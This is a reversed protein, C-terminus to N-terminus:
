RAPNALRRGLHEVVAKLDEDTDVQVTDLGHRTPSDTQVGVGLLTYGKRKCTKIERQLVELEEEKNAAPMKGDTYYLLIRDTTDRRDLQKRAFELAHGDLNGGAAGIWALRDKASTDWPQDWDKIHYVQMTYSREALRGDAGCHHAIVSFEVGLRAMLDAQAFAARKVLALNDGFNSSSIDIIILVSYDKKGPIRKKAFLRDDGSWARRGLVKPDVRGSRRHREHTAVKNDDFVRRLKLLNPGMIAEPIEVDCEVGLFIQEERKLHDRLEWVPGIGDRFEEVLSVNASPTEFYQGQIVAVKIAKEDGTATEADPKNGFKDAKDEHGEHMQNVVYEVQEPAGWEPLPIGGDGKDAGSELVSSLGEGSGEQDGESPDAPEGDAEGEDESPEGRDSPGTDEQGELDGGGVGDSGSDDHDAQTDGLEPVEDTGDSIGTDSHEDGDAEPSSAGGEGAARDDRAADSCEEGLDGVRSSDDGSGSEQADRDSGRDDGSAESGEGVGNSGAADGDPDAGGDEPQGVESTDGESPEDEAEGPGASDSGPEADAREDAQGTGDDGSGYADHEDGSPEDTGADGDSAAGDGEQSEGPVDGEAEPESESDDGSENGSSSSSQEDGSSGVGDEGRESSEPAEDEGSGADSGEGSEDNSEEQEDSDGSEDSDPDDTPESDQEEPLRMYGLERLRELIPFSAEYTDAMSTANTVANLLYRLRKDKLDAGVKEHLYVEWGQYGAAVLYCAIAAQSNLDNESWMQRTGDPLEIGDRFISFTDAVLMKKTGKRAEFMASDVRADELSNLLSPLFPSILSALGLYTGKVQPPATRIRESMKDAFESGWEAVGRTLANKLDAATTAAFTGFAIHAIEHYINVLVEERIACASCTQLGTERDRKDCRYVDHPTMDGLRIPPRYYIIKGDTHPPGASVEVRVKPDGTIARAYGTLGHQMSRFAKVAARARENRDDTDSQMRARADSLRM